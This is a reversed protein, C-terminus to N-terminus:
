YNIRKNNGIFSSTQGEIKFTTIDGVVPLNFKYFLRVNYYITNNPGKEEKYCYYYNKGSTAKEFSINELDLAGVWNEGNVYCKGMTRYSNQILYNNIIRASGEYTGEDKSIGEYKEIMTLMENKLTYARSYSIVLSLFCAFILIFIIILQFSWTTGFAERM